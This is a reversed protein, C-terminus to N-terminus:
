PLDPIGLKLKDKWAANDPESINLSDLKKYLYKGLASNKTKKYTFPANSVIFDTFMKNSPNMQTPEEPDERKDIMEFTLDLMEIAEDTKDTLDLIVAFSAYIAVNTSDLLWAQNMRKMDTDYDGQHLYYWGTDMVKIAAVARDPEEKDTLALFREDSKLQDKCKQVRGYMPLLSIGEPCEEAQKQGCGYLATGSLVCIFSLIFIRYKM